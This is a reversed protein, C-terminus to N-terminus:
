IWVDVNFKTRHVKWSQSETFMNVHENNLKLRKLNMQKANLQRLDLQKLNGFFFCTFQGHHHFNFKAVLIVRWERYMCSINGHHEMSLTLFYKCVMTCAAWVAKFKNWYCNVYTVVSFRRWLTSRRVFHRLCKSHMLFFFSFFGAFCTTEAGCCVSFEILQM